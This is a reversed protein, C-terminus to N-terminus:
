RTKCPIDRVEHNKCSQNTTNSVTPDVGLLGMFTVACAFTGVGYCILNNVTNLM